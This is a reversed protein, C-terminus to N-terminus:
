SFSSTLLGKKGTFISQSMPHNLVFVHRVLSLIWKFLCNMLNIRDKIKFGAKLEHYLIKNLLVADKKWWETILDNYTMFSSGNDMTPHTEESENKHWVWTTRWKDQWLKNARSYCQKKCTIHNEVKLKVALTLNSMQYPKKTLPTTKFTNKYFM